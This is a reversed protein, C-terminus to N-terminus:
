RGAERVVANLRGLAIWSRFDALNATVIAAGLRAAIQAILVDPYHDRPEMAGRRWRAHAILRGAAEWETATPTLLRDFRAFVATLQAVAAQQVRSRAGAHLEAVTVGTLYCRHNAALRRLVALRAPERLAAILVTTDFLLPRM